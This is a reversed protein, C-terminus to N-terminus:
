DKRQDLALVITEIVAKSIGTGQQQWIPEPEEDCLAREVFIIKSNNRKLQM